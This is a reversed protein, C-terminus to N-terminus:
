DGLERNGKTEYRYIASVFQLGRVEVEVEGDDDVVVEAEDQSAEHELATASDFLRGVIANVLLARAACLLESLRLCHSRSSRLLILLSWFAARLRPNSSGVCNRKRSLRSSPDHRQSLHIQKTYIEYTLPINTEPYPAFTNIYENLKL